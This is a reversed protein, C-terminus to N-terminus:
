RAKFSDVFGARYAFEIARYFHLFLQNELKRIEPIIDPHRMKIAHILAEIEAEHDRFSLNFNEGAEIFGNEIVPELWKVIDM